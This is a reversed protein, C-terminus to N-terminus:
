MLPELAREEFLVRDNNHHVADKENLWNVFISEMYMAEFVNVAERKPLLIQSRM